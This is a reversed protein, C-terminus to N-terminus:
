LRYTKIFNIQERAKGALGGDPFNTVYNTYQDMAAIWQGLHEYNEAIGYQAESAKPSRRYNRLFGKYAEVAEAYKGSREYFQAIQWSAEEAVGTGSFQRVIELWTAVAAPSDHLKENYIVATRLLSEGAKDAGPVKSAQDYAVVARRLAANIKDQRDALQAATLSEVDQSAMEAALEVNARDFSGNAASNSAEQRELEGKQKSDRAKLLKSVQGARQESLNRQAWRYARSQAVEKNNDLSSERTLGALRLAEDEYSKGIQYLADDALPSDPYLEAVAHLKQRAQEIDGTQVLIVGIAYLADDALHSKPYNTAVKQYEIIAKSPNALQTQIITAMQFQADFAKPGNEDVLTQYNALDKLISIRRNAEPVRADKPFAGVYNEYAVIAGHWQSLSINCDAIAWKAEQVWQGSGSFDAIVRQYAAIADPWAENAQHIQGIMALAQGAAPHQPFADVFMQLVHLSEVWRKQTQLQTGIDFVAQQMTADNGGRAFNIELYVEAARLPRGLKNQYTQATAQAAQEGLAHTPYNISLDKWVSIAEESYGRNALETAVDWLIQPVTGIQPHDAYEGAVRLLERAARVYQGRALTPSSADVVRAQTIFSTAIDWQTEQAINREDPFDDVIQALEKRAAAFRRSIEALMAQRTPNGPLPTGAYALDDLAVGLRLIHLQPDAPTDAIYQRNLAAARQWQAISRWHQIAVLIEARAQAASVTDPFKSKVDVFIEYAADIAAQQRSLEAESLVPIPSQGAQQQPQKQPASSDAPQQGAQLRPEGHVAGFSRAPDRMSAVLAARRSEERTIAALAENDAKARQDDFDSRTGPMAPTVPTSTGPANGYGGGVGKGGVPKRSAFGSEFPDGLQAMGTAAEPTAVPRGATIAALVERAHDPMVKGIQCMGRCFRIREPYRIRLGPAGALAAGAGGAGNIQNAQGILSAYIADAVDWADVKAYEQAIGMIQGIVTGVLPSDPHDTLFRAYASLAAGFEPSIKSPAPVETGRADTAAKATVKELEKHAKLELPVASAYIAREAFSVAGPAAQSLVKSNAAFRAFDGYAAVAVDYAGYQQYVEILSLAGNAAADVRPDAPHDTIFKEYVDIAAATSRSLKLSKAANYQQLLRTLERRAAEDQLRALEFQAFADASPSAPVSKVKM